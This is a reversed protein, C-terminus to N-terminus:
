RSCNTCAHPLASTIVRDTELSTKLGSMETRNGTGATKYMMYVPKAANYM